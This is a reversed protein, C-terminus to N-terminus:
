EQEINGLVACAAEDTFGNQKLYNFIQEQLNSGSFGDLNEITVPISKSYTRSKFVTGMIKVKRKCDCYYFCRIEMKFIWQM